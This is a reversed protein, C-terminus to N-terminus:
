RMLDQRGPTIWKGDDPRLWAQHATVVLGLAWGEQRSWKARNEGVQASGRRLIWARDVSVAIPRSVRGPM